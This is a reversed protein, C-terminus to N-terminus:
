RSSWPTPTRERWRARFGIYLTSSSGPAFEMAEANFGDAQKPQNGSAADAAFGLPNDNQEDWDILDSRLGTYSGVYSLTTDAGSGSVTTEFLTSRAPELKGSSGNSMSGLWYITNGTRAAAEIDVETNGFPLQGTFDFSDVPPGSRAGHYLRIVNNEDDAGLFYGDGVDIATSLNGSGSFYRATDADSAEASLGYAVTTTASNEAPDTVTLTISANGVTTGPTVM